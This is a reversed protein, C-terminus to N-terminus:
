GSKEAAGGGRRALLENLLDLQVQQLEVMRQWQVHLLHDMKEHLTAIEIEAKLNTKFDQEAQLRDRAAFRNQSMMIVPAQLAAICSLVLNLLIYPFPDFARSALVLSNLAIWALLTLLFGVVFPWSGGVAAVRDALRQGFTTKREFEEDLHAAVTLHESAKRAIDSEVSSLEGREEELRDLLFSARAERHCARCLRGAADLGPHHAQLHELLAPRLARLSVLQAPSVHRGCVACAATRPAAPAPQPAPPTASTESM